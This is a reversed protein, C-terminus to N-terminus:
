FMIEEGYKAAEENARLLWDKETIAVRELKFLIHTNARSGLTKHPEYEVRLPSSNNIEHKAVDLVCVRFDKYTTYKEADLQKKLKDIPILPETIDVSIFRELIRYLSKAYKSDFCAITRYQYSTYHGTEILGYLYPKMSDDIRYKIVGDKLRVNSFWVILKKDAEGTEDTIWKCTNLKAIGSMIDKYNSGNKRYEINNAACYAQISITYEKNESDTANIEKLMYDLINQQQASLGMRMEDIVKNAMAVTLNRGNEARALEKSTM